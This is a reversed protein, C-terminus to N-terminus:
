SRRREDILAQIQQDILKSREAQEEANTRLIDYIGQIHREVQVMRLDSSGQTTAMAQVQQALLAIQMDISSTKTILREIARSNRDATQAARDATQATTVVLERLEEDTM